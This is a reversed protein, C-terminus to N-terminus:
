VVAKQPDPWDNISEINYGICLLEKKLDCYEDLEAERLDILLEPSAGGHQGIHMYSAIMGHNDWKEDPFLAICEGGLIKFWVNTIHKDTSM